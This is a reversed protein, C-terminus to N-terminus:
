AKGSTVDVLDLANPAFPFGMLVANVRNQPIQATPGQNLKTTNGGDDTNYGIGAPDNKLEQKILKGAQKQLHDLLNTRSITNSAEAPIPVGISALQDYVGAYIKARDPDDDKALLKFDSVLKGM